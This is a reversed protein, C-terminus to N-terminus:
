LNSFRACTGCSSSSNVVLNTKASERLLADAVLGFDLSRHLATNDGLDDLLERGQLWVDLVNQGFLFSDNLDLPVSECQMGSARYHLVRKAHM